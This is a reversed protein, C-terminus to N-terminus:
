EDGRVWGQRRGWELLKMMIEVLRNRDDESLDDWDRDIRRPLNAERRLRQLKIAVQFADPGALDFADDEEYDGFAPDTVTM